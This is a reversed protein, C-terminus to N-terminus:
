EWSKMVRAKGAMAKKKVEDEKESCWLLGMSVAFMACLLLVEYVLPYGNLEFYIMSAICALLCAYLVMGLKKARKM